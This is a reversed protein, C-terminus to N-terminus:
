VEEFVQEFHNLKKFDFNSGDFKGYIEIIDFRINLETPNEMLYMKACNVIRQKKYYTVAEAPTGFKDSSRTKVEVFVLNEKHKAIIDIEGIKNRYNRKIIKYGKKKLYNTATDEGCQGTIKNYIGKIM